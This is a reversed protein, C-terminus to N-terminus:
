AARLDVASLEQCREIWEELCEQQRLQGSQFLLSVIKTGNACLTISWNVLGFLRVVEKGQFKFSISLTAGEDIDRTLLMVGQNGFSLVEGDLITQSNMIRIELQNESKM